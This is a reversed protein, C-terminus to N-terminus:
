RHRVKLGRVWRYLLIAALTYSGHELLMLGPVTFSNDLLNVFWGLVLASYAAVPLYLGRLIELKHHQLLLYALVGTGFLFTLLEREQMILVIFGSTLLEGSTSSKPLGGPDPMTSSNLPPNMTWRIDPVPTRDIAHQPNASAALL